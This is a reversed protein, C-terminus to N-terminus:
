LGTSGAAAIDDMSLELVELSETLQVLVKQKDNYKELLIASEGKYLGVLIVVVEGVSPLVTELYKEKVSEVLTRGNDFRITAVGQSVVDIITGKQLYFKGDAIKKSILKVRIGPRIWSIANTKTKENNNNEENLKEKKKSKNDDENNNNITNLGPAAKTFMSLPDEGEEDEVKGGGSSSTGTASPQPKGKLGFYTPQESEKSELIDQEPFILPNLKVSLPDLLLLSHRSIDVVDGTQELQVRIRSLGPVGQTQLVKARIDRYEDDKCIVYDNILFMGPLRQQQKEKLKQLELKKQQEKLKQPNTKQNPDSQNNAKKNKNKLDDIMDKPDAGLGLRFPRQKLKEEKSKMQEFTKGDWGMGRLLAAGFEEVPVNEYSTSKVHLDDPRSLIDIKFRDDDTKCNLIDKSLFRQLLPGKKQSSSSSNNPIVNDQDNDQNEDENSNNKEKDNDDRHDYDMLPIVLPKAEEVVISSEIKSNEISYIYDTEQPVKEREKEFFSINSNSEIKTRKNSFNQTKWQVDIRKMSNNNNSNEEMQTSSSYEEQNSM